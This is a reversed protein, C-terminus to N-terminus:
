KIENGTYKGERELKAHALWSRRQSERCEDVINKKVACELYVKQVQDEPFMGEVHRSEDSSQRDGFLKVRVEDPAEMFMVVRLANDYIYKARAWEGMFFLKHFEEPMQMLKRELYADYHKIDGM